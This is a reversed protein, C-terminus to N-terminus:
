MITTGILGKINFNEGRFTKECSLCHWEDTGMNRLRILDKNKDYCLQCYEGEEKGNNDKLTYYLQKFVINNKIKLQNLLEQNSQECNILMTQVQSIQINADTLSKILESLQLQIDNQKISDTSDKILKVTEIATKVSGIIGTINEIM